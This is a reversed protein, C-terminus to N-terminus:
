HLTSLLGPSCQNQKMAGKSQDLFIKGGEGAILHFLLWDYFWDCLDSTKCM